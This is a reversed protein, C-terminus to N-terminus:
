KKFKVKNAFALTAEYELVDERRYRVVGNNPKFYIPGEGRWRWKALTHVSVGLRKALDTPRLIDTM